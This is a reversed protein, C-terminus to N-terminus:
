FLGLQKDKRNVPWKPLEDLQVLNSLEHHFYKALKPAHLTDPSHVFMYPHKGDRIWKAIIIAWEKLYSENQVVENGGVFRIFPNAGTSDFRVPTKPKRKKAKLISRDSSNIEHLRRTDFVVRNIGYSSLLDNLHREKKGKDFYDPHRLEVAFSLHAPLIEILEELNEIEKYSFNSGLQIHFPGLKNRISQFQELFSLVEETVNKLRKHHTIVRPFKFCFKFDVPVQGGWKSIIESTPVRYFTTNGEVANFVSAYESLFNEPKAESSFFNGSWDKFGWQTLGIHYKKISM